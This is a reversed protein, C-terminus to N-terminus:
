VDTWEEEAIGYAAKAGDLSNWPGGHSVIVGGDSHSTSIYSTPENPCKVCYINELLGDIFSSLIWEVSEGDELQIDVPFDTASLSYEIEVLYSLEELLHKLLTM